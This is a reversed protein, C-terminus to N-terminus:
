LQTCQWASKSLRMEKIHQGLKVVKMALPSFLKVQRLTVSCRERQWRRASVDGACMVQVPKHPALSFALNNRACLYIFHALM